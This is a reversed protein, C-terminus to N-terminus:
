AGTGECVARLIAQHLAHNETRDTTVEIVVPETGAVARRYAEVFAGPRDAAEYAIGFLAAAHRFTWPHPTGFLPEFVDPHRAIPLFSFIGGGHNNVAVVVVPVSLGRLLALSNLDHLLALDGIVLTVPASLGAAFGAASAVTGDIGSAGRNSAVPVRAGDGPAFMDMDRVPMSSALYLGHRAPLHRAVLRAVLPESLRDQGAFFADLRAAAESSAATWGTRWAGDRVTRPADEAAEALATCFADVDAEYRDTVQHSPDLRAPDDHVVVYPVPRAAEIFQALRKSTIRGGVHLVAEPRHAARFAEGALLLDYYAVVGDGTDFRLPSGVDPLVPWGLAEALRRVAQGDSRAQRGAVVIGREISRLRAWLAEATGPAVHRQQPAYTTYPRSAEQWSRLRELYGAYDRGDPDPALPERLMCNLHVPGAPGRTARYVAQDITTLIMAPDIELAPTPLDFQWRVYGGFLKVQDITQNAGTERLEPPRDATLLLMPVGDVAAEVVAPFGNAVATGSTTVWAAPRGTARAYGLACFATGREDFHMVYRAKPHAAVATALPASRSGPALCFFDVGNRVLEEVILDCWLRTLNPSTM